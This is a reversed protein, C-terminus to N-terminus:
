EFTYKVLVRHAFLLGTGFDTPTGEVETKLDLLHVRILGEISWRDNFLYGGGIQLGRTPSVEIDRNFDSANLYGVHAGVPVYWKTWQYVANAYLTFFQM